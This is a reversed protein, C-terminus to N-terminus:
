QIAQEMAVGAFVQGLAEAIVPDFQSGSCREIESLALAPPMPPRQIHPHTMSDYSDAIALIRAGIPIRDGKLGYPYGSGDFAEHHALVLNAAGSFRPLNQLLDFGARPHRRIVSWEQDDLPAAKALISAPVDLKGIDHLLAGHELSLLAADNGVGIEDALALTLRAVRRSHGRGDREHFQLMTILGDLAAVHTTQAEALAAALAARRVRLRDQLVDHLEDAGAAAAHWDCALSLAELLRVRDFPKLLYDVVDNRLNSVASECDRLGTAIIIATHPHRERIQWALWTGDRGAVTAECLAITSPEREMASLADEATPAEEVKYGLSDIWSTVTHRFAQDDDVVLVSHM